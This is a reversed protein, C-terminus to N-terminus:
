LYRLWFIGLLISIITVPAGIKSYDWFKVTVGARRAQEVVILNAVSGLMTFNGAYTSSMALALWGSEQTGPELGQLVPKLLLVAPVNSVLNSLTASVLCLMGLPDHQLGPWNTWGGPQIVLKEFTGVVIFLGAFMILLGWDLDKWIFQTSFRDLLVLGAVLLAVEVLHRTFLFGALTIGLALISKWLLRDHRYSPKVYIVDHLTKQVPITSLLNRRFLWAALL